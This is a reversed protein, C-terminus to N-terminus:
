RQAERTTPAPVAAMTPVAASPLARVSPVDRAARDCSCAALIDRADAEDRRMAAVLDAVEDFATQARLLRRLEVRAARDYLDGEFDLVHAELTRRRGVFTENSGVSILADRPSAWEDLTFTGLYVGDPPLPARGDPQLNATAYGLGTGEGAGHVVLGSRVVPLRASRPLMSLASPVALVAVVAIVGLTAADSTVALVSATVASGVAAGLQKVTNFVSSAGGALASPADAVAAVSFPAWVLSNAAGFVAFAASVTWLPADVALLVAAAVLGAALMTGGLAGSMRIGARATLRAAVPVFAVCMVGMPLLVVAASLPDLGRRDQLDLMLPIPASGVAFSAFAAGASAFALSRRRLISMPLLASVGQRRQGVVVAVVVLAGAVCWCWRPVGFANPGGDVGQIGILVAGVGLLCAALAGLSLRVRPGRTAPVLMRVAVFALVGIPVNVWFVARWDSVALIAGGVLPGAVTAAGGVGSWVSLAAAVRERRFLGRIIVLCQPTIIAAGIGQLVRAGILAPATPALACLLSGAVFVALGGLYLRRHGWRDGLRGTVLLPVGYAMLYASNLWMATTSSTHLDTKIAPLAVSTITSDLMLMFFGLCLAGLAVWNERTGVTM